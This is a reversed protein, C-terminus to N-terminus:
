LFSKCRFCAGGLRAEYINSGIAPRRIYDRKRRAATEATFGTDIVFVRDASRAVWVFYDLPMPSDHADGGIFQNARRGDRRAYRIAFVEYTPLSM